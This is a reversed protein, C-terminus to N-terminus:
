QKGFCMPFVRSIKNFWDNTELFVFFFFDGWIGYDIWFLIFIRSSLNKIYISKLYYFCIIKVERIM